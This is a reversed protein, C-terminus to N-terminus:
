PSRRKAVNVLKKFNYIEEEIREKHESNAFDDHVELNGESVKWNVMLRGM